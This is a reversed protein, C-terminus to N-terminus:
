NPLPLKDKNPYIKLFDSIRNSHTKELIEIAYDECSGCGTACGTMMKLDNLSSAGNSKAKKIDKETISHCICVYM